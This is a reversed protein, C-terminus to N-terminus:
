KRLQCGSFLKPHLRHWFDSLIQLSLSFIALWFKYGWPILKGNLIEWQLNNKVM